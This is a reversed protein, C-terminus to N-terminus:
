KTAFSSTASHGFAVASHSSTADRTQVLSTAISARSVRRVIPDIVFHLAGPIPRSLAMAETEVYVGGDREQYRSITCLRWIYGSGEGEPIKRPAGEGLGTVERVHVAQTVSYWKSRDVQVFRSDYESDLARKNFMNKDVVTVEFRDQNSQRSLTKADVISPKYVEPYRDYDRILGIVDEMRVGPIFVAGIWHHILGSPVAEPGRGIQSVVIEGARIRHVREPAQDSWLFSGQTRESLRAAAHHLFQDWADLTEQKLEAAALPVGLAVAYLVISRRSM